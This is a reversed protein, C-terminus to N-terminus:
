KGQMDLNVPRGLLSDPPERAHYHQAHRSQPSAVKLPTKAKSSLRRELTSRNTTASSREFLQPPAASGLIWEHPVISGAHGPVM